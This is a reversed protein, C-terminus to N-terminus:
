TAVGLKKRIRVSLLFTSRTGSGTLIAQAVYDKYAKNGVTMSHSAPIAFQCSFNDPTGFNVLTATGLSTNMDNNTTFTITGGTFATVNVGSPNQEDRFTLTYTGSDGIAFEIDIDAM